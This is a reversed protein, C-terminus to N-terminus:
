NVSMLCRKADRVVWNELAQKEIGESEAKAGFLRITKAADDKSMFRM